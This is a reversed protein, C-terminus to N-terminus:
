GFLRQMARELFTPDAQEITEGISIGERTLLDYSDEYWESGPFNYGLVAAIQRAEEDVGLSVYAEVLRHLAEPVHSTNGYDRLVNQFRNIGALHYGRRLYWRGVTMEKGALHDRTMDIKLRADTAYRSEPFRRVVQELAALAQQTAAQDRGVDMIQEFHSIAILYYAYAANRNGPHLSIFRQADSIAEEYNTSEYNAYAAMLMSRRAWESYPHQREVEDFLAAALPYQRRDLSEFATAYITEAPREVYAVSNDPGNACAALAASLLLPLVFRSKLTM